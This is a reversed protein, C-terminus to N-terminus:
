RQLGLLFFTRDDVKQGSVILERSIITALLLKRLRIIIAGHSPLKFSILYKIMKYRLDLVPLLNRTLVNNRGIVRLIFNKIIM